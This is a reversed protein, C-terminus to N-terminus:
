LPLTLSTITRVQTSSCRFLCLRCPGPFSARSSSTLPLLLLLPQAAWWCGKTAHHAREKPWALHTPWISMVCSTEGCYLCLGDRTRHLREAQSTPLCAPLFAPPSASHRQPEWLSRSLRAALLPSVLTLYNAPSSIIFPLHAVRSSDHYAPPWMRPSLLHPLLLCVPSFVSFCSLGCCQELPM